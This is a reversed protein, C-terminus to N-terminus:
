SFAASKGYGVCKYLSQNHKNPLYVVFSRCHPNEVLQIRDFLCRTFRNAAKGATRAKPPDRTLVGSLLVGNRLPLQLFEACAAVKLILVHIFTTKMASTILFFSVSQRPEFINSFETLDNGFRWSSGSFRSQFTEYELITFITDASRTECKLSCCAAM